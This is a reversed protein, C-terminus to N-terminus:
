AGLRKITELLVKDKADKKRGQEWIKKAEDKRGSAWLVEGLHAAIEADPQKGYAIQLQKVAEDLHGLRYHVWGLSDIIAPEGPKLTLAKQILSLAETKHETRDALTYGLANLADADYPKLELVRRLDRVAADVHNLDDNLLARAYLLRTDDPLVQLGRDYVAVADEGQQRKNLMEAELLFVDGLQKTDDGARAQLQHILSLAATSKGSGDLMLASRIQAEYWHQDDAPVQQYWALAEAKRELLEALEGLLNLRLGSQPAPQAKLERYLPEILHKDDARAAYAARAAFSYDDQPGQALIRAAGANDGLEGLLTAYATRLHNNKGDRKLADAFLARAGSKDGDQLKLRAAWAYAEASGSKALARQALTQALPKNGLRSALESVAIWTEAKTGLLEATALRELLAGAQPKDSADLLTQAIPRWGKADALQALRLLDAHAADPKDDHLALIARAQWVGPDEGRLSQWRALSARALPWQKAAIAVRTAQAAVTPDDSAQAAQAYRHAAADVDGDALAFEAALTLTLADHEPATAPLNLRQLPLAQAAAHNRGAPLGTCGALIAAVALALVPDRRRLLPYLTMM